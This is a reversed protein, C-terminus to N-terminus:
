KSLFRANHDKDPLVCENHRGFIRYRNKAIRDYLWDSFISPVVWGICLLPWPWPLRRSVRFFATSKTYVVPGEVLLLTEFYDTPFGHWELIARGEPSQVSALKFKHNKDFRIIFRVWASCLKCVGDFLIVHDEASVGPACHKKEAM